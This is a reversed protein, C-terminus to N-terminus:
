QSSEKELAELYERGKKAWYRQQHAKVKDPNNKRWERQYQRRAENAVLKQMSKNESM